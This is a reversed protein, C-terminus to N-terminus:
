KAWGPLAGFLSDVQAMPLFGSFEIWVLGGFFDVFVPVIAAVLLCSVAVAL